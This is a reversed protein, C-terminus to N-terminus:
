KYATSSMEYELSIWEVGVLDVSPVTSCGTLTVIFPESSKPETLSVSVYSFIYFDILFINVHPLVVPAGLISACSNSIGYTKYIIRRYRYIKLIM